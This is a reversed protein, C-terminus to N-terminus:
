ADLGHPSPVVIQHDRVPRVTTRLMADAEALPRVEDPATVSALGTVQHLEPVGATDVANLGAFAALIEAFQHEFTALEADTLRLRALAALHLLQDRTLPSAM